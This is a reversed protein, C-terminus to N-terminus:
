TALPRRGRRNCPSLPTHSVLALPSSCVSRVFPKSTAIASTFIRRISAKRKRGWCPSAPHDDLSIAISGVLKGSPTVEGYLLSTAAQAGDAGGHWVYLLARIRQRLLPDDAWSLDILGATNLVVAVDDFEGCVQHLLNMEDATLRYGGEVDANDQDGATRGFVIVAQSSFARAQRIQEDSLPMEQQYWPEAAWGRRRQRLTNNLGANTSDPWNSNLRVGNRARMAQLLTTSSVVNVAGGSGTGSRYYDIQTRGFLSVPQEPALPLMQRDNRLLVAGEAAAAAAFEAFGELPTGAQSDFM